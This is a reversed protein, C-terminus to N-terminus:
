MKDIPHEKFYLKLKEIVELVEKIVAETVNERAYECIDSLYPIGKGFRETMWTDNPFIWIHLHKAREEQVITIDEAGNLAKLAREAGAVMDIIEYREAKNLKAISNVHRKVNVILFGPIPIEPDAGLITYKGECIFGGPIKVEGKLIACGMCDYHWENGLFDVASKSNGVLNVDKM